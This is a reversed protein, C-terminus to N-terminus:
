RPVRSPVVALVIRWVNPTRPFRDGAVATMHPVSLTGKIRVLPILNVDSAGLLLLLHLSTMELIMLEALQHSTTDVRATWSTGCTPSWPRSRPARSRGTKPWVAIASRRATRQVPEYGGVSSSWGLPLM